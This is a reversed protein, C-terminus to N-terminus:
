SCLMTCQWQQHSIFLVPLFRSSLRGTELQPQAKLINHICCISLTLCWQMLFLNNNTKKGEWFANM